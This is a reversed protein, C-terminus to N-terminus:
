KNFDRKIDEKLIFPNMDSTVAEYVGGIEDINGDADLFDFQNIISYNRTKPDVKYFATYGCKECLLYSEAILGSIDFPVGNNDLHIADVETTIVSMTNGCRRCEVPGLIRMPHIYDM